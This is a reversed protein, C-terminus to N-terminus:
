GAGGVDSAAGSLEAKLFKLSPPHGSELRRLHYRAPQFLVDMPYRPFAGAIDGRVFFANVGSASCGVLIYGRESFVDSFSALSAGQYDDGTWVGSHRASVNVRMPPPFKANYEVCV